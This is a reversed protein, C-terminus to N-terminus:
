KSLLSNIHYNGFPRHIDHSTPDIRALFRDRRVRIPALVTVHADASRWQALRRLLVPLAAVEGYGEVISAVTNV